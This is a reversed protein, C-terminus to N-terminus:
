QGLVQQYEPMSKEAMWSPTYAPPGLSRQAGGMEGWTPAQLNWGGQPGPWDPNTPIPSGQGSRDVPAQPFQFAPRGSMAGPLSSGAALDSGPDASGSFPNSAGMGSMADPPSVAGAQNLGQGFFRQLWQQLLAGNDGGIGGAGGAGSLLGPAVPAGAGLTQPVRFSLIKIADMVPSSAGQQGMRTGNQGSMQQQGSTPSFSLGVNPM